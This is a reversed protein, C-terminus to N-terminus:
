RFHVLCSDSYSFYIFACTHEIKIRFNTNTQGSSTVALRFNDILRCTASTISAVALSCTHMDTVLFSCYCRTSQTRLDCSLHDDFALRPVNYFYSTWLVYHWRAAQVSAFTITDHSATERRLESPVAFHTKTQLSVREPSNLPESGLPVVRRHQNAKANVTQSTFVYLAERAM